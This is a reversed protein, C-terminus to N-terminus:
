EDEKVMWIFAVSDLELKLNKLGKITLEKQEIINEDEHIELSKGYFYMSKAKTSTVINDYDKIAQNLSNRRKIYRKAIKRSKNYRDKVAREWIDPNFLGKFWALNSNYGELAKFYKPQNNRKGLHVTNYTSINNIWDELNKKVEIDEVDKSDEFLPHFTTIQDLILYDSPNFKTENYNNELLYKKNFETNWTFVLGKWDIDAKIVFATSRGRYSKKANDIISDFVEDGPSFFILDERNVAIDTSFSGKLERKSKSRKLAKQTNPPNFLAVKASNIQFDEPLYSIILDNEGKSNLVSHKRSKLGVLDAWSDMTFRLLKGGDSDFKSVLRNLKKDRIPNLRKAYDYYREKEVEDKMKSIESSLEKISGKLGEKIDFLM